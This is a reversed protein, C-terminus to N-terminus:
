CGMSGGDDAIISGVGIVSLPLAITDELSLRLPGDASSGASWAVPKEKFRRGPLVSTREFEKDPCRGSSVSSVFGKVNANRHNPENAIGTM